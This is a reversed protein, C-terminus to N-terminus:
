KLYSNWDTSRLLDVATQASCEGMLSELELKMDTQALDNHRIYANFNIPVQDKGTDVIIDIGGYQNIGFTIENFHRIRMRKLVFAILEIYYRVVTSTVDEPPYSPLNDFDIADMRQRFPELVETLGDMDGRRLMKKVSKQLKKLDM